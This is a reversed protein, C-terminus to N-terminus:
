RTLSESATKHARSLWVVLAQAAEDASPGYFPMLATPGGHANLVRARWQQGSRGVEIRYVRGNIEQKLALSPTPMPKLSDIASEFLHRTNDARGREVILRLFSM